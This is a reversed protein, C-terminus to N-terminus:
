VTCTFISYLNLDKVHCSKVNYLMNLGVVNRRCLSLFSQDLCLRTLSYVQRELLQPLYEAAPGWVPSCYELIESGTCFLLSTTEVYIRKM